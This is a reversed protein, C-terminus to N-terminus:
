ASKTMLNSMTGLLVAKEVPKPVYADAGAELCAEKDGQMAKATIAVVPMSALRNNQRIARTAELGNMVPMMVDMLVINTGSHEELFNLAEQGNKATNIEAGTKRLIKSLSFINRADDDVILINKGSFNCNAAKKTPQAENMPGMAVAEAAPLKIMEAIAPEAVVVPKRKVEESAALPQRDTPAPEDVRACNLSDFLSALAKEPPEANKRIFDSTYRELRTMEENSLDKASYVIVRPQELEDDEAIHELMEIGDMGPLMIDLLM